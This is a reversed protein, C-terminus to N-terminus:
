RPLTPRFDIKRGAAVRRRRGKWFKSPPPLGKTSDRPSKAFSTEFIEPFPISHPGVRPFRRRVFSLYVRFTPPHYFKLFYLSYRPIVIFFVLTQEYTKRSTHSDRNCTFYEESKLIPFWTFGKAFFSEKEKKKKKKKTCNLWKSCRRQLCGGIENLFESSNEDGDGCDKLIGWIYTWLDFDVPIESFTGEDRLYFNM